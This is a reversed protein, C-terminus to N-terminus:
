GSLRARAADGLSAATTEILSRMAADAADANGGRIGDLVAEHLPLTEVAIGQTRTFSARLVERLTSGLHALLENHCGELILEHFKVDAEIYADMDAGASEQM